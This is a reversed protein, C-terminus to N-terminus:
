EYSGNDGPTHPKDVGMKQEKRTMCWRGCAECYYVRFTTRLKAGLLLAACSAVHSTKYGFKKDCM